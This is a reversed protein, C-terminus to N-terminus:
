IMGGANARPEALEALPGTAFHDLGSMGGGGM